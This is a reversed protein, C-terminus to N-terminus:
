FAMRTSHEGLIVPIKLLGKEALSTCDNGGVIIHDLVRIDLHGLITVLSNTATLDSESPHTSGSPHNHALIIAAANYELAKQAIIRPYIPTFSITGHFLEEYHLIHHKSNLFICSFVEQKHSSLKAILYKKADSLSAINKTPHLGEELFRRGLELAAHLMVYKTKGIGKISFLKSSPAALLSRLSKYEQLLERALDVATKGKLGTRLFIALLEAESLSTVGLRLMKERPREQAPWDTLAM